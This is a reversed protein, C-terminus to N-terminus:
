FRRRIGIGLMSGTDADNGYLGFAGSRHFVRVVGDWRSQNINELAFEVAVYELFRESRGENRAPEDAYSPGTHFALSSPRSTWHSTDYRVGLGAAVASSTPNAIFLVAQAEAELSFGGGLDSVRRDYALGLMAGDIDFNGQVIHSVFQHTAPGGYLTLSQRLPQATAQPLSLLSFASLVSVINLPRRMTKCRCAPPRACGKKRDDM